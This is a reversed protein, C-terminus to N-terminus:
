KDFYGRGKGLPFILSFNSRPSRIYISGPNEIRGYEDFRITNRMSGLNFSWNNPIDRRIHVKQNEILVYNHQNFNIRINNKNNLALSQAYLIDFQLTELFHNEKIEEMSSFVFPVSILLLIMWIGLVFLIEMLTFGRESRNTM